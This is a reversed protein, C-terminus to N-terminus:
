KNDKESFEEVSKLVVPLTLEVSDSEEDTVVVGKIKVEGPNMAIVEIDVLTKDSALVTVERKRPNIIEIGEAEFNVSASKDKKLFNHIVLSITTKEGHFLFKPAVLRAIFLKTTIADTKGGGSLSDKTIFISEARWRTLSDPWTLKVEAEGNDDTEVHPLWLASDRFNGRNRLSYDIGLGERSIHEDDKRFILFKEERENEYELDFLPDVFVNSYPGDYYFFSESRASKFKTLWSGKLDNRDHNLKRQYFNSISSNYYINQDSLSSDYISLSFEGRVPKGQQDRATIKYTAKEGPRYVKKDPVISLNASYLKIPAYLKLRNHFINGGSISLAKVYVNPLWDLTVPLKVITERDELKVVISELIRKSKVYLWTYKQKTTNIIKIEATDGVKYNTKDSLIYLGTRSEIEEEDPENSVTFGSTGSSEIENEYADNSLFKFFCKGEQHLKIDVIAEGNSNTKIKKRLLESTKKDKYHYLILEGECSIPESSFKRAKINVTAIGGVPFYRNNVSIRTEYEKPTVITYQHGKIITKSSDLMTAVVHYEYGNKFRKDGRKLNTCIDLELKGNKDLKGSGELFLHGNLSGPNEIYHNYISGTWTTLRTQYVQYNVTAGKVPDGFRYKASITAKILDGLRHQNGGFDTFVKLEPKEYRAVKFTEYGGYGQTKFNIQWTGLADDDELEFSGSVTGYENVPLEKEKVLKMKPDHLTVMITKDKPLLVQAKDTLRYIFKFNVEQGPLYIPKDTYSFWTPQIRRPDNKRYFSTDNVMAFNEGDKVILLIPTRYQTDKLSGIWSGNEDTTGKQFLNFDEFKYGDQDNAYKVKALLIEANTALSGNQSNAAYTFIQDDFRRMAVRIDSKILLIRNSVERGKAEILFAGSREIPLEVNKECLKHNEKGEFSIHKITTANPFAKSSDFEKTIATISRHKQILDIFNLRYSSIKVDRQNRTVLKVTAIEDSTFVREVFLDLKPAIIHSIYTQATKVDESSENRDIVVKFHVLAKTYLSPKKLYRAYALHAKTGYETDDYKEFITTFLSKMLKQDYDSGGVYPILAEANLYHGQAKLNNDVKLDDLKNQARKINRKISTNDADTLSSKILYKIYNTLYRAIVNHLNEPVDEAYILRGAYKYLEDIRYENSRFSEEILQDAEWGKYISEHFDSEPNKQFVQITVKKIDFKRLKELCLILKEKDEINAIGMDHLSQLYGLAEEYRLQEIATDAKSRLPKSNLDSSDQAFIFTTSIILFQLTALLNIFGIRTKM